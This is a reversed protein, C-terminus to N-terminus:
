SQSGVVTWTPATPTGSNIYDKGNTIDTLKAGKPAGRGTANVGPTTEEVALTGDPSGERYVALTPVAMKGYAGTFTVTITGIGNTMTGVATTVSGAGLIAELAADINAILTNNTASWAINGTILSGGLSLQFTEAAVWTGDFTLTQVEDTGAVPAGANLIPGGLGSGEIVKGGTIVAM